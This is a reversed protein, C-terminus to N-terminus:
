IYVIIIEYGLIYVNVLVIYRNWFIDSLDM